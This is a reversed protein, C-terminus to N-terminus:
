SGDGARAVLEAVQEAAARHAADLVHNYRAHVDRDAHGAESMRIDDRVEADHMLSVATHRGGEHLTIVPVGAQAALQGFRRSVYSPRWPTGDLRAFVLDHDQWDAGARMRAAIQTKRHERLLGATTADLYVRRVGARTKPVGGTLHGDLELITHDVVLLGADLDTSAWRLGCLEGRRLGRLVALRFMLGLVDDATAALFRAAQEPAWRQRTAPAEPELEVGACPNWMIKRQKVAANMAARLTALIRRQTTPGVIRPQSRVDGDLVILARGGARQRIIEANYRGIMTFLGAIHGANLRELQIHGLHPRLWNTIHQRYSREVSPRIARRSALWQDLWEGVTLGPQGPDLGLGLRRRVDEVAPLPQGRKAAMIMDGIKRRTAEDAGALDLLRGAHEAAAKAEAKSHYGFRKVAKTGTSTPVRTAFGASGHRPNWSGGARWLKPCAQGLPKGDEGRCSCLYHTSYHM